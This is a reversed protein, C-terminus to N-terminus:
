YSLVDGRAAPAVSRLVAESRLDDVEHVKLLEMLGTARAAIATAWGGLTLGAAPDGSRVLTLEWLLCSLSDAKDAAIRVVWGAAPIAEAWSHRGDGAPRWDNLKPLLAEPLTM